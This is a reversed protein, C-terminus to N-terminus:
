QQKGFIVCYPGSKETETVVDVSWSARMDWMSLLRRVVKRGELGDEM